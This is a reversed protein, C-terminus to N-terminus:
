GPRSAAIVATFGDTRSARMREAVSANQHLYEFAPVGAAKAVLVCFGRTAAIPAAQHSEAPLGLDAAIAQADVGLAALRPLRRAFTPLVAACAATDILAAVPTQGDPRDLEAEVVSLRAALRFLDDPSSLASALVGEAGMRLVAALAAEDAQPVATRVYKRGLLPLLVMGNTM